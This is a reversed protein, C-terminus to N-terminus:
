NEIEKRCELDIERIKELENIIEETEEVILLSLGQKEDLEWKRERVRMKEIIEDRYLYEYSKIEHGLIMSELQLNDSHKQMSKKFRTLLENNGRDNMSIYECLNLSFWLEGRISEKKIPIGEKILRDLARKITAYRNRSKKGKFFLPNRYYFDYLNLSVFDSGKNEPDFTLNWLLYHKLPIKQLENINEWLGQPRGTKYFSKGRM